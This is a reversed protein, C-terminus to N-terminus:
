DKLDQRRLLQAQVGSAPLLPRCDTVKFFGKVKALRLRNRQTILKSKLSTLM